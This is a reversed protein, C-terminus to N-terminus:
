ESYCKRIIEIKRPYKGKTKNVKKFDILSRSSNEFPLVFKETKNLVIGLDKGKKLFSILEEDCSGKMFVLHGNLKLARVSIESLVGLNAVARATIYDFEEEHLKSYDEMRYHEAKIKKLNLINIVENLYNVRKQLSDILIIKLDPFFIKLVIGPFGAGSGVDCLSICKTLDIVKCLTLSDYFHKLYVDEEEIITTLNIKENWEILLKYFNDLQKLKDDTIEIGLKKVEEIFEKKNM